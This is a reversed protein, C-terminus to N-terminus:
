TGPVTFTHPTGTSAMSSVPAWLRELTAVGFQVDGWFWLGVLVQVLSVRQMRSEMALISHFAASLYHDSAWVLISMATSPSDTQTGTDTCGPFEWGRNNPMFAMSAKLKEHNLGLPCDRMALLLWSWSIDITRNRSPLKTLTLGVIHM